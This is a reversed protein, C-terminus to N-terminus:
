VGMIGYISIDAMLKHVVWRVISMYGHISRGCVISRAVLDKKQVMDRESKFRYIESIM